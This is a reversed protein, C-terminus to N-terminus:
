AVKMTCHLFQGAPFMDMVSEPKKGLLLTGEKFEADLTGFVFCSLQCISFLVVFLLLHKVVTMAVFCM